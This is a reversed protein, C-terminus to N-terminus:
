FVIEFRQENLSKGWLLRTKEKTLHFGARRYLSNAKTLMSVTWLFLSTYGQDKTFQIAEQLLMSGIGRCRLDPHILFWRLQATMRDSKVVALCGNVEEKVGVIWIKEKANQTLAFTRLPEEVYQEFTRDFGFEQAYLSGHLFVIQEVDGPEIANRIQISPIKLM